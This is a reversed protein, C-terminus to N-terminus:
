RGAPASAPELDRARRLDAEAELSRGVAQLSRARQLYGLAFLPDLRLARDFAEVAAHHDGIGALAVGRNHWVLPKGPNIAAARSYDALADGPRGLADLANGRNILAEANGPDVTLSLTYDALAREPDGAEQLALARDFLVKARFRRAGALALAREFVPLARALEGRAALAQGLNGWAIHSSPHSRLVDAWLTAGDEWVATRRWSLSTLLLVLAALAAGLARRRRAGGPAAALSREIGHGVALFLGVSPLYFYRDATHAFGVPFLQLTPAITLLFWFLGFSAFPSRHIPRWLAAALLGLALPALLFPLPLGGGEQEPFPYLASLGFPALAKLSLFLLGHAAVFPGHWFPQEPGSRMAEHQAALTLVAFLLALLAFPAKGWLSRREPRRGLLRDALLLILPAAIAAPKALLSCATLVLAAAPFRPRPGSSGRVYALLAALFFFTALLTKLQAAWAVVEVQLPHTAFLLGAAIQGAGRVGLARALALVLVANAAHLAISLAHHPLPALGFLGHWAGHALLTLPHYNSLQFSSFYQWLHRPTLHLVLPNITLYHDDDWNTFGNFLGPLHAIVAVAAVLAAAGAVSRLFRGEAPRAAGTAAAATM